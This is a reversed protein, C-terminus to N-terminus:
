VMVKEFALIAYRNRITQFTLYKRLKLYSILVLGPVALLTEVAAKLNTAESKGPTM